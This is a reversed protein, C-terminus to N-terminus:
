FDAALGASFVNQKYEYFEINSKNRLAQGHVFWRLKDTLPGSLQASVTNQRDERAFAFGAGALSNPNRYEDRTASLGAAAVVRNPFTYRVTASGGYGDSPFDSGKANSNNLNVGVAASWRTGPFRM